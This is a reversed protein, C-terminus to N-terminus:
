LIRRDSLSYLAGIRSFSSVGGASGFALGIWNNVAISRAWRALWKDIVELSKGLMSLIM